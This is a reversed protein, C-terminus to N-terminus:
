GAYEDFGEPLKFTVETNQTSRGETLAIKDYLVGIVTMLQNVPIDKDPNDIDSELRMLAKDRIRSATESFEERKQSCLDVFEPKDRNRRVVERVTSEGIEFGNESLERATARASGSVAWSAMIQYIEDCTLKRGRM